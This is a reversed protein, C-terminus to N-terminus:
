AGGRLISRVFSILRSLISHIEKVEATETNANTNVEKLQKQLDKVALRLTNTDIALDDIRDVLKDLTSKLGDIRDAVENRVEKEINRLDHVIDDVLAKEEKTMTNDGGKALEILRDINLTGPCQTNKVQNHGIIHERDLPINHRECIEKLLASSTQYTKETANRGVEADNEIGISRLNMEWNGSHWATRAEEVWQYITEDSVGYHASVKSSVNQFREDASKLTGIGFWHLCVRDVPKREKSYNPSGRWTKKM